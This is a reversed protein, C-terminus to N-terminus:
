IVEYESEDDVKLYVLECFSNEYRQIDINSESWTAGDTSLQLETVEHVGIVSHIKGYLSSLIVDKNVGLGNIHNELNTKIENKGTTGEFEPTTIIAARVYVGRTTTHSFNITRVFGGKDVIDQSIAGYTKVGIPKKEFIAEAIEKHYNDGGSIYVEFSKPPRGEEDIEMTENAIVEAHKVTPVRMVAARISAENCAGAGALVGSFRQRLEYDSEVEEGIITREIGVVSEVDSSPNVITIIEAPQVNGIDGAEVCEVIAEVTGDEGITVDELTSFNIESDTGVLFGAPVTKASTGTIKIKYQSKIAPNRSMAVFVCLRDLSTGSASNPSISYYILEAEEETLAQDYANIRLYKGLPTKDSTDIDEGFLERAKAEKDALIEAFTRRKFGTETLPM